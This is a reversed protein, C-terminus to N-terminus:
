RIGRRGVLLLIADRLLTASQRRWVLRGVSRGVVGVISTITGRCVRVVVVGRGRRGRGGGSVCCRSSAGRRCRSSRPRRLPSFIVLRFLLLLSKARRGGGGTGVVVFRCLLLGNLLYLVDDIFVICRGRSSSSSGFQVPSSRRGGRSCGRVNGASTGALRCCLRLSSYLIHILGIRRDEVTGIIVLAVKLYAIKGGVHSHSRLPPARASHLRAASKSTSPDKFRLSSSSYVITRITRFFASAMASTALVSGFDSPLDAGYEAAVSSIHDQFNPRYGCTDVNM